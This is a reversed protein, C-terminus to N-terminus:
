TWKCHSKNPTLIGQHGECGCFKCHNTKSTNLWKWKIMQSVQSSMWIHADLLTCKRSINCYKIHKSEGSFALFSLICFHEWQEKIVIERAPHWSSFAMDSKDTNEGALVQLTDAWCLDWQKIFGLQIRLPEQSSNLYLLIIEWPSLYCVGNGGGQKTKWLLVRSGTNMAEGSLRDRWSYSFLGAPM